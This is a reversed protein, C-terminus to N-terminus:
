AICSVERPAPLPQGRGATPHSGLLGSDQLEHRSNGRWSGVEDDAPSLARNSRAKNCVVAGNTRRDIAFISFNEEDRAGFGTENRRSHNIIKGATGFRTHYAYTGPDVLFEMGGVSLTFSLADAHGHAAITQYGLPGADAM